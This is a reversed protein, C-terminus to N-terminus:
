ISLSSEEIKRILSSSESSSLQHHSMM